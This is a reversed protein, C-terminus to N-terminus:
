RGHYSCPDWSYCWPRGQCRSSDHGAKRPQFSASLALGRSDVYGCACVGPAPSDMSSTSAHVVADVDGTDVEEVLTAVEDFWDGAEASRFGDRVIDYNPKPLLSHLGGVGGAGATGGGSHHDVEGVGSGGGGGGGSLYLRASPCAAGLARVRSKYVKRTSILIVWPERDWGGDGLGGAGLRDGGSGLGVCACVAM